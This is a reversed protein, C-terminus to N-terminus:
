GCGPPVAESRALSILMVDPLSAYELQRLMNVMQAATYQAHTCVHLLVDALSTTRERGQGSSTSVKRVPRSLESETLGNLVAQWEDELALWATMLETLSAVGGQGAQSGPLQGPVDGPLTAAPDGQIARLWVYEAAYLHLVTRWVSGQGIALRCTLSEAPLAQAAARLQDNVWRRHQHLRRILAPGDM